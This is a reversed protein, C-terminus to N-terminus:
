EFLEEELKLKVPFFTGKEDTCIMITDTNQKKRLFTVYEEKRKGM